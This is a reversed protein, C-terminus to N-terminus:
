EEKKRDEHTSSRGRAPPLWSNDSGRNFLQGTYAIDQFYDDMAPSFPRTGGLMEANMERNGPFDRITVRDPDTTLFDSSRSEAGIAERHGRSTPLPIRAMAEPGTAGMVSMKVREKERSRIDGITREDLNGYAHEMYDRIFPHGRVASMADNSFNESHELKDWGLRLGEPAHLNSFLDAREGPTNDSDMYTGGENNLIELRALDSLAGAAGGNVGGSDVTPLDRMARGFRESSEALEEVHRIRVGARVLGELDGRSVKASNRDLWLNIKSGRAAEAWQGISRIRDSPVKGGLWIFHMLPPIQGGDGTLKESSVDPKAREQRPLVRPGSSRSLGYAGGLLAPVGVMAALAIPNTLGYAYGLGALGGGIIGGGLLGGLGAWGNAQIPASSRPTQRVRTPEAESRPSATNEQRQIPGLISGSM